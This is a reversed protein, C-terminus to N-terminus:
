AIALASFALDFWSAASHAAVACPMIRAVSLLLFANKSRVGYAYSDQVVLCKAEATYTQEHRSM